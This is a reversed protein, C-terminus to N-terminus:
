VKEEYGLRRLYYGFNKPNSLDYYAYWDPFFLRETIGMHTTWRIQVPSVGCLKAFARGRMIVSGEHVQALYPAMVWGHEDRPWIGSRRLKTVRRAPIGLLASVQRADLSGASSAEPLLLLVEKCSHRSWLIFLQAM